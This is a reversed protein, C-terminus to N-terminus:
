PSTGVGEALALGGKPVAKSGVEQFGVVVCKAAGDLFEEAVFGASPASPTSPVDFGGHNIGVGTSLLAFTDEVPTAEGDADNEPNGASGIYPLWGIV